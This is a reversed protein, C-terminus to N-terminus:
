FPIQILISYMSFCLSSSISNVCGMTFKWISDVLNRVFRLKVGGRCWFFKGKPICTKSYNCFFYGECSKHNNPCYETLVDPASMCDFETRNCLPPFTYYRGTEDHMKKPICRGTEAKWFSFDYCLDFKFEYSFFNCNIVM